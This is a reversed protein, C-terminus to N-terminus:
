QAHAVVAFVDVAVAVAVGYGIVSKRLHTNCDVLAVVVARVAAVAARSIYFCLCFVPRWLDILMCCICRDGITPAPVWCALSRPPVEISNPHTELAGKMVWLKTEFWKITTASFRKRIIGKLLERYCRADETLKDHLRSEITTLFWWIKMPSSMESMENLNPIKIGTGQM